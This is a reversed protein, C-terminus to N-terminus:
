RATEFEFQDKQQYAEFAQRDAYPGAYKSDGFALIPYFIFPLFLLGLTFGLDKGFSKSQYHVLKVAAILNAIPVLFWLLYTGRKGVIKALVYLNYIPILSAWGSRGAKTFIKWQSAIALVVFAGWILLITTLTQADLTSEYEYSYTEDM